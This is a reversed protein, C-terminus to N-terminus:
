RGLSVIRLGGGPSATITVVDGPRFGSIFEPSFFPGATGGVLPESTQLMFEGYACTPTIRREIGLIRANAIRQPPGAWHYGIRRVDDCVTSEAAPQRVVDELPRYHKTSACAGCLTTIAMLTLARDVMSADEENLEINPTLEQPTLAIIEPQRLVDIAHLWDCGNWEL